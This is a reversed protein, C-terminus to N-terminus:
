VALIGNERFSFTNDKTVILHDIFLINKDKCKKYLDLTNEIDTLSPFCINSVHNHIFIFKNSKCNKLFDFVDEEYYSAEEDNENFSIDKYKIENDIIAIIRVIEKKSIRMDRVYKSDCKM